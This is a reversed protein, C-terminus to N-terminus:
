TLKRIDKKQNRELDAITTALDYVGDATSRGCGRQEWRIVRARDDPLHALEELYDCCGPGGNCLILWPGQDGSQCTWLHTLGSVIIREHDRSLSM